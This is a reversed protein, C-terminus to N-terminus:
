HDTPVQSRPVYGPLVGDSCILGNKAVSHLPGKKHHSVQTPEFAYKIELSLSSSYVVSPVPVPGSPTASGGTRDGEALLQYIRVSHAANNTEEGSGM